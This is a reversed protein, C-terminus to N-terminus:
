VLMFKRDAPCRVQCEYENQHTKWSFICLFLLTCGFLGFPIAIFARNRPPSGYNTKIIRSGNHQVVCSYQNENWEEPTVSLSVTKQFTGDDNPLKEGVSVNRSVDEGNRQWSMNVARPYFGTAFCVVPSSPTKRLFSVEPPSVPRQLHHKRNNKIRKLWVVCKSTIEKGKGDSNWRRVITEAGPMDAVYNHEKDLSIFTEGDYGYEDSVKRVGNRNLQCLLRRQLTHVGKNWALQEAERMDHLLDKIQSSHFDTYNSWYVDLGEKMWNQISILTKNDSNYHAIYEKDIFTSSMSEPLSSIGTQIMFTIHLTHTGATITSNFALIFLLLLGRGRMIVGALLYRLQRTSSTFLSHCKRCGILPAWM